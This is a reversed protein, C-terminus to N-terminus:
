SGCGSAFELLATDEGTRAPAIVQEAWTEKSADDTHPAVVPLKTWEELRDLADSRATANGSTTAEVYAAMWACQWEFAAQMEGTGPEYQGDEDWDGPPSSPSEHGEPLTGALDESAAEYEDVFSDFNVFADAPASQQQDAIGPPESQAPTSETSPGGTCGALSAVLALAAVGTAPVGFRTVM